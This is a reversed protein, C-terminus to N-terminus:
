NIKTLKARKRYLDANETTHVHIEFPEKIGAKWLESIVNAPPLMTVILIDIDSSYNNRKEAVSGFLYIEANSDIGEMTQKVIKIYKPLNRFVEQRDLARKVLLEHSL